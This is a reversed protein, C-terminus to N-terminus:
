PIRDSVKRKGWTQGDITVESGNPDTLYQEHWCIFVRWGKIDDCYHIEQTGMVCEGDAIQKLVRQYEELDKDNTLDFIRVKPDFKHKPQMHPPDDDRLHMHPGRWPLGDYESPIWPMPPPKGSNNM